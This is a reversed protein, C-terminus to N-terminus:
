EEILGLKIKTKEPIHKNNYLILKIEEKIKQSIKNDQEDHLFRKFKKIAHDPLNELIEDFKDSLIDRKSDYMDDIIEKRNSLVWNNGDFLMAYNDRLNSIYINHNEPKNEDFHIKKNDM